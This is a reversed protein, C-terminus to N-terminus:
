GRTRKRRGAITKSPPGTMDMTGADPAGAGLSPPAAAAGRWQRDVAEAIGKLSSRRHDLADMVARLARVAHKAAILRRSAEQHEKHGVIANPVTSETAKSVGFGGPDERVRRDLSSVVVGLSLKAQDEEEYADALWLGYELVLPSLRQWEGILDNEDISLDLKGAEEIAEEITEM